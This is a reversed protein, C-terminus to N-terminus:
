KIIINNACTLPGGQCIYEITDFNLYNIMHAVPRLYQKKIEAQADYLVIFCITRLCM